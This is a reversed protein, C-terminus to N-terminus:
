PQKGNNQNPWKVYACGSSTKTQFDYRANECKIPRNSGPQPEILKGGDLPCVEGQVYKPEAKPPFTRNRSLPTGGNKKIGEIADNLKKMVDAIDTGRFTVSVEFNDTRKYNTFAVVPAEQNEM